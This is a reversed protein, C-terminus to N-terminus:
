GENRKAFYERILARYLKNSTVNLRVQAESKLAPDKVIQKAAANAERMLENADKQKQTLKRRSMDPYKSVVIKDGYKKFVIQKGIHGSMRKFLFNESIAMIPNKAPM